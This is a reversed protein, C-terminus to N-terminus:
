DDSDSSLPSENKGIGLYKERLQAWMHSEKQDLSSPESEEETGLASEVDGKKPIM